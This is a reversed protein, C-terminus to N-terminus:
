IKMNIIMDIFDEESKNPDCRIMTQTGRHTVAKLIVTISKSIESGIHEEDDMLVFIMLTLSFNIQIKLKM